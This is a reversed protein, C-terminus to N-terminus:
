KLLLVTYLKNLRLALLIVYIQVVNSDNNAVVVEPVVLFIALSIVLCIVLDVLLELVVLKNPMLVQMVLSTMPLDKQQDSLVEYAENAQKFKEEAEKNNQNRDPHHKMALKRYASKIEADSANKAVGLVKYYDLQSM